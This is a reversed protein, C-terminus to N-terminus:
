TLRRQTAEPEDGEQSQIPNPTAATEPEHVIVIGAVSDTVWRPPRRGALVDGVYGPPSHRLGGLVHALYPVSFHGRDAPLNTFVAEDVIDARDAVAASFQGRRMEHVPALLAKVIRRAGTQPNRMLEAVEPSVEALPELPRQPWHADALDELPLSHHFVEAALTDDAFSLHQQALISLVVSM